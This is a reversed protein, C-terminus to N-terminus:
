RRCGTWPRRAAARRPRMAIQSSPSASSLSGSAGPTCGAVGCEYPLLLAAGGQEERRVRAADLDLPEDLDAPHVVDLGHAMRGRTDEGLLLGRGSAPEGADRRRRPPLRLPPARRAPARATARGPLAPARRHGIGLGARHTAQAPARTTGREAAFRTRGRRCSHSRRATGRRRHCVVAHSPRCSGCRRPARRANGFGRSGTRRRAARAARRGRARGRRRSGHRRARRRRPIGRRAAGRRHASARRITARRRPSGASTTSRSRGRRVRRWPTGRRHPRRRAVGEGGPTLPLPRAALEGGAPGVNRGGHAHGADGADAAATARAISATRDDLLTRRARAPEAPSSTSSRAITRKPM